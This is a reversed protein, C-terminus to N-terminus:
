VGSKTCSGRLTGDDASSPILNLRNKGPVHAESFVRSLGCAHSDPGWVFGLSAPKNPLPPPLSASRHRATLGPHATHVKGRRLAVCRAADRRFFAQMKSLAQRSQRCADAGSAAKTKGMSLLFRVGAGSTRGQWFSLPYLSIFLFQRKRTNYYRLTTLM